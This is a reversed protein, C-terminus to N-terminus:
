SVLLIVIYRVSKGMTYFNIDLSDKGQLIQFKQPKFNELKEKLIKNNLAELNKNFLFLNM